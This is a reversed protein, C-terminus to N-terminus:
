RDRGTKTISEQSTAKSSRAAMNFAVQGSVVMSSLRNSSSTQLLRVEELGWGQSFGARALGQKFQLKM